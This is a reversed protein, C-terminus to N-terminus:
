RFFIKCRAWWSKSKEIKPEEVIKPPNVQSRDKRDKEPGWEDRNRTHAFWEIWEIVEDKQEVGIIENYEPTFDYVKQPDKPNKQGDTEVESM